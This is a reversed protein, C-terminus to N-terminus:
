IDFYPGCTAQETKVCGFSVLPYFGTSTTVMVEFEFEFEFWRWRRLGIGNEGGGERFLALMFRLGGEGGEGSLGEVGFGGCGREWERVRWQSEKGEEMELGVRGKRRWAVAASKERM